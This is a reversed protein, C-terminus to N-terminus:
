EFTNKWCLPCIQTLQPYAQQISFLYLNLSNISSVKDMPTKPLVPLPIVPIRHNQRCIELQCLGNSRQTITKSNTTTKSSTIGDHGKELAIPELHKNNKQKREMSNHHQMQYVIFKQSCSLLQITWNFSFMLKNLSNNDLFNFVTLDESWQPM